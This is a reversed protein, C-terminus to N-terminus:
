GKEFAGPLASEMEEGMFKPILDAALRMIQKQDFRKARKTEKILVFAVVDRVAVRTRTKRGTARKARGTKRSVTMDGQAILIARNASLRKFVLPGLPSGAAEYRQPTMRFRGIRKPLARTAIALWQVNRGRITAGNSYADLAGAARSDPGGKAFVVGWANDKDRRRKRESSTAGVANGLRGLGVSRMAQRVRKHGATTARDVAVHMAKHEARALLRGQARIDRLDPATVEIKM